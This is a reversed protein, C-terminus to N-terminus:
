GVIRGVIKIVVADYGKMQAYLASDVFPIERGPQGVGPIVASEAGANIPM